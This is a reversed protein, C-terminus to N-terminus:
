APGRWPAQDGGTLIAKRRREARDPLPLHVAFGILSGILFAWSPMPENGRDLYGFAVIEPGGAALFVRGAALETDEVETFRVDEVVFDGAELEGAAGEEELQATATEAVLVALAESAPEVEAERAPTDAERWPGGPYQEIVPYTPSALEFGAGVGVWHPLDGKPGLYRPTGPAGFTWLASLILMFAFFGTATVLYGMRLGFIASVLLYVSGVFLVMSSITAAWGELFTRTDAVLEM